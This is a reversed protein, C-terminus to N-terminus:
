RRLPNVPISLAHPATPVRYNVPRVMGARVGNGVPVVAPFQRQAAPMLSSTTPSVKAPVEEISKAPTPNGAPGTEYIVGPMQQGCGYCNSGHFRESFFLGRGRFMGRCPFICHVTDRLGQALASLLPIGCGCGSGLPGINGVVTETSGVISETTSIRNGVLLPYHLAVRPQYYSSSPAPLGEQGHAKCIGVSLLLVALCSVVIKKCYM